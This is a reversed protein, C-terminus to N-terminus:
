IIIPKFVSEKKRYIVKELDLLDCIINQIPYKKTFDEVIFTIKTLKPMYRLFEFGSDAYVIVGLMSYSNIVDNYPAAKTLFWCIKFLEAYSKDVYEKMNTDNYYSEYSTKWFHEGSCLLYWQKNTQGFYLLLPIDMHSMIEVIMDDPLFPSEM